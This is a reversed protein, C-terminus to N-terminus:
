VEVERRVREGYCTMIKVYVDSNDSVLSNKCGSAALGFSRTRDQLKM